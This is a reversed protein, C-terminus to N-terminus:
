GGLGSEYFGGDEDKKKYDHSGPTPTMLTKVIVIWFFPILWILIEHVLKQRDTFCTDMKRFRLAFNLTYALYFLTGVTLIFYIM